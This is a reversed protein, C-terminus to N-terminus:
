VIIVSTYTQRIQPRRKAFCFFLDKDLFSSCFIRNKICPTLFFVYFGCCLNSLGCDLCCQKTVALVRVLVSKLSHYKLFILVLYVLIPFEVSGHDSWLVSFSNFCFYRFPVQISGFQLLFFFPRPFFTHSHWAPREDLGCGSVPVILWYSTLAHMLAM